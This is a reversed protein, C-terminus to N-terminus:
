AGGANSTSPLLPRGAKSFGSTSAKPPTLRATAWALLDDPDYVPRSGWRRFPPGGGICALKALTKPSTTFGKSTLLEAAARRTLLAIPTTLM